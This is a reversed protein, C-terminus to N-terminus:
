RMTWPDFGGRQEQRAHNVGMIGAVTFLMGAGELGGGGGRMANFAATRAAEDHRPYLQVEIGRATLGEIVDAPTDDPVVAGSFEDLSVPRRMKVELYQTPADVISAAYEMFDDVVFSSPEGTFGSAALAKRARAETRAGTGYRGVARHMDDLTDWTSENEHLRTLKEALDGRISSQAEKIKDMQDSSVLDRRYANFDDASTLRRASAARVEGPGFVIRSEKNRPNSLRGMEASLNELTFAKKTGRSGARFFPEGYASSVRERMFAEVAEQGGNEAVLADLAERTASTNVIDGGELARIDRGARDFAGFSLRTGDESFDRGTSFLEIIEADQGTAEGWKAIADRYETAAEELLGSQHFAAGGMQNSQEQIQKFRPSLYPIFDQTPPPGMIPQAEVGRSRLFLSKAADSRPLDSVAREAGKELEDFGIDYGTSGMVRRNETILESLLADSDKTTKFERTPTRASYIDADFVDVNPAAPDVLDRSGVLSVDGMSTFPQDARHVALSPNPIGGMEEAFRIGDVTTNHTARLPDALRRGVAQAVDGGNSLKRMAGVMGGTVLPLAASAELAAGVRHGQDLAERTRGVALPMDAGIMDPVMEGMFGGLSGVFSSPDPAIRQGLGVISQELPTTGPMFRAMGAVSSGLGRLHQGYAGMPDDKYEWLLRSVGDAIARSGGLGVDVARQSGSLLKKRWADWPDPGM